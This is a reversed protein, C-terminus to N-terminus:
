HPDDGIAVPMGASSWDSWSGVYLDAAPFGALVMALINHCATVGSGCHLIVKQTGDIGSSAYRERLLSPAIFTMDTNLNDELPMSIAGPIHGAVPDIPEEDGRYRESARADVLISTDLRNEVDIRDVTRRWSHTPFTTPVVEPLEGTLPGESANWADLGGDRVSVAPHGQNTLMWWMRSAIGGGRDDYVVVSVTRDIGLRGCTEGFAGHPPLPHRGPGTAQALDTDLDVFRAGPIHSENYIARGAAPDDIYWRSDIIVIDIDGLRSRLEYASILPGAM